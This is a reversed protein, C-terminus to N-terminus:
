KECINRNWHYGFSDSSKSEAEAFIKWHEFLLLSRFQSSPIANNSHEINKLLLSQIIATLSLLENSNIPQCFLKCDFPAKWRKLYQKSAVSQCRYWGITVENSFTDHVKHSHQNDDVIQRNQSQIILIVVSSLIKNVFYARSSIKKWQTTTFAPIRPEKKLREIQHLKRGCFPIEIISQHFILMRMCSRKRDEQMSELFKM